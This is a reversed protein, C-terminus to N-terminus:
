YDMVFQKNSDNISFQNMFKQNNDYLVLITFCTDLAHIKILSRM